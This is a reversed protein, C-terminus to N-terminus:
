SAVSVPNLACVQVHLLHLSLRAQEADTELGQLNGSSALGDPVIVSQFRYTSALKDLSAECCRVPIGRVTRGTKVIDYELFVVPEFNLLPHDRLLHAALVSEQDSGFVAVREASPGIKGRFIEHFVRLSSRLLGSLAVGLVCYIVLAGRSLDRVSFFSVIGYSLAVDLCVVRLLRVADSFGFARSAITYTKTFYSFLFHSGMVVPMAYMLAHYQSDPLDGEWRIVYALLFAIGALCTDVALL